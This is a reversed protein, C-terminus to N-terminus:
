RGGRQDGRRGPVALRHERRRAARPHPRRRPGRRRDPRPCRHRGGARYELGFWSVPSGILNYIRVDREQDPNLPGYFLLEDGGDGNIDWGSDIWSGAPFGGVLDPGTPVYNGDSFQYREYSGDEFTVTIQPVGDGKNDGVAVGSPAAVLHTPPNSEFTWLGDGTLVQLHDNSNPDAWAIAVDPIGDGTCDGAAASGAALGVAQVGAGWSMGGAARGKLLVVRDGGWVIADLVGDEDVHTTRVGQIVTDDSFELVRHAGSDPSTFWV